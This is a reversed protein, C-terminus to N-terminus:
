LQGTEIRLFKSIEFYALLLSNQALFAIKNILSILYSNKLVLVSELYLRFHTDQLFIAKLFLFVSLLRLYKAVKKEGMEASQKKKYELQLSSFALGHIEDDNHISFIRVLLM